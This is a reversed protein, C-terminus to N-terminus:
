GALRKKEYFLDVLEGINAAQATEVMSIKIGIAEMTKVVIDMRDVSNAGLERLSEELRIKEEPMEPLIEIINEKLIKFIYDKLM